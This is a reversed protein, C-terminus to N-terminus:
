WTDECCRGLEGAGGEEHTRRLPISDVVDEIGPHGSVNVSTRTIEGEGLPLAHVVDEAADGIHAEKVRLGAAGVHDEQAVAGQNMMADGGDGAKARGLAAGFGGIEAAPEGALAEEDPLRGALGGELPLAVDDEIVASGCEPGGVANTGAAGRMAVDGICPVDGDGRQMEGVRTEIVEVGTEGREMPVELARLVRSIRFARFVHAMQEVVGSGEVGSRNGGDLADVWGVPSDGNRLEVGGMHGAAGQVEAAGDKGPLDAAFEGRAEEVGAEIDDLKLEALEDLATASRLGQGEAKAIERDGM